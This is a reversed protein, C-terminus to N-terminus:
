HWYELPTFKGLVDADDVAKTYKSIQDEWAHDMAWTVSKQSILSLRSGSKKLSSRRRPLNPRSSSEPEEIWEHEHITELQGTTPFPVHEQPVDVLTSGPSSPKPPEVQPEPFTQPEPFVQPHSFVQPEPFEQEIPHDDLPEPSDVFPPPTPTTTRERISDRSPRYPIPIPEPSLVGDPRPSEARLGHYPSVSRSRARQPTPKPPSTLSSRQSSSARRETQRARPSVPVPQAKTKSRKKQSSSVPVAYRSSSATARRSSEVTRVATATSSEKRKSTTHTTAPASPVTHTPPGCKECCYPRTHSETTAMNAVEAGQDRFWREMEKLRFDPPAHITLFMSHPANRDHPVSGRALRQCKRIMRDKLHRIQM